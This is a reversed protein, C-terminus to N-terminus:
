KQDNELYWKIVSKLGDRLEYEKKYGLKKIKSDDPCRRDTEGKPQQSTRIELDTNMSKLIMKTLELISIEDNNGIHYINRHEGKFIVKNLAEIFDNIFIFSRTQNGDGKIEIFTKNLEKTKKINLILQPIVHEWGMDPGYVNHPRFIILKEFFDKYYYSCILESILKGGGYSYRPNFIDPIKLEINEPTPFLYPNQYVESSSAFIFNKINNKKCVEIANLIGRISVDLVEQPKSYFFETGNIAAMHIFFDHGSSKSLLDDYNKVDGNFFNIEKSIKSLRRANGRSLNDFVSVKNGGKLLSLVLNSGLFGSGGTVFFNRM